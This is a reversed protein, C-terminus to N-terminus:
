IAEKRKIRGTLTRQWNGYETRNKGYPKKIICDKVQRLHNSSVIEIITGHVNGRQSGRSMFTDTWTVRLKDGIEISKKEIPAYGLNEIKKGDATTYSGYIFYGWGQRRIEVTDGDGNINTWIGNLNIM